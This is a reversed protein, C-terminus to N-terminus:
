PCHRREWDDGGETGHAHKLGHYLGISIPGFPVGSHPDHPFFAVPHEWVAHGARSSGPQRVCYSVRWCGVYLFVFTMRLNVSLVLHSKNPGVAGTHPGYRHLAGTILGYLLSLSMYYLEEWELASLYISVDRTSVTRGIHQSLFTLPSPCILVIMKIMKAVQFLFAETDDLKGGFIQCFWVSRYYGCGGVVGGM